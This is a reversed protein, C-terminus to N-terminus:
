AVSVGCFWLPDLCRGVQFVHLLLSACDHTHRNGREAKELAALTKMEGRLSTSPSCTTPSEHTLGSHRGLVSPSWIPRLHCKRQGPNSDSENEPISLGTGAHPCEQSESREPHPPRASGRTSLRGSCSALEARTSQVHSSNGSRSDRWSHPLEASPPARVQFQAVRGTEPLPAPRSRGKEWTRRKCCFAGRTTTGPGEGM